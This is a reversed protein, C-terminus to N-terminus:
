GELIGKARSVFQLSAHSDEAHLAAENVALGVAGIEIVAAIVHEPLSYFGQLSDDINMWTIWHCHSWGIRIM